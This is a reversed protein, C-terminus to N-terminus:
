TLRRETRPTRATLSGRWHLFRVLVWALVAVMVVAFAPASSNGLAAIAVALGAVLVILLEALNRPIM